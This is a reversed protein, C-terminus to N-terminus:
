ISTPLRGLTLASCYRRSTIILYRLLNTYSAFVPSIRSSLFYIAINSSKQNGLLSPPRPVSIEVRGPPWFRPSIVSMSYKLFFNYRESLTGGDLISPSPPNLKPLDDSISRSSNFNVLNTPRKLFLNELINWSMSLVCNIKFFTTVGSSQSIM